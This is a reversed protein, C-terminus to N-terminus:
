ANPRYRKLFLEHIINPDRQLIAQIPLDEWRLAEALMDLRFFTFMMTGVPSTVWSRVM